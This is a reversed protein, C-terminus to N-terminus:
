VSGASTPALTRFLLPKCIRLCSPGGKRFVNPQTNGQSILVKLFFVLWLFFFLVWGSCQLAESLRAPQRAATKPVCLM